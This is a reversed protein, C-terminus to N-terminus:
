ISKWYYECNESKTQLKNLVSEVIYNCSELVKWPIYTLIIIYTTRAKLFEPFNSTFKFIKLNLIKFIKFIVLKPFKLNALSLKM